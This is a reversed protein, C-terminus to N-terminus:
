TIVCSLVPATMGFNLDIPTLSYFSDNASARYNLSFDIFNTLYYDEATEEQLYIKALKYNEFNRLCNFFAEKTETDFTSVRTEINQFHYYAESVNKLNYNSLALQQSLYNFDKENDPDSILKNYITTAEEWYGKEFAIDAQKLEKQASVTTLTLFSLLTLLFFIASNYFM